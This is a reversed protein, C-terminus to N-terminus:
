RLVWWVMPYMLFAYLVNVEARLHSKIAQLRFFFKCANIKLMTIHFHKAYSAICKNVRWWCCAILCFHFSTFWGIYVSYISYDNAAIASSSRHLQRVSFWNIWNVRLQSVRFSRRPLINQSNSPMFFFHFDNRSNRPFFLHFLRVVSRAFSYSLCFFFM